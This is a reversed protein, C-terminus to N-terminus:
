LYYIANIISFLIPKINIYHCQYKNVLVFLKYYM